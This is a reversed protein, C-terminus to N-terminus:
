NRHEQQQLLADLLPLDAPALFQRDIQQAPLWRYQHHSGTLRIPDGHWHCLYGHLHIVKDGYDHRSSALYDRVSARISLEEQLERQLAQQPTEGADIKGGPFEWLGGQSGKSHRQAIFVQQKHVMLAAVVDIIM